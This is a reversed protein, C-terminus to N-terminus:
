DLIRCFLSIFPFFPRSRMTDFGHEKYPPCSALRSLGELEHDMLYDYSINFLISIKDDYKIVKHILTDIIIEKMDEDPVLTDFHRFWFRPMDRDLLQHKDVEKKM